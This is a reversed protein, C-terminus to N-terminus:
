LHIREQINIFYEYYSKTYHKLTLFVMSNYDYKFLNYDVFHM